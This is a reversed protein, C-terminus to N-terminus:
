EGRGVKRSVQSTIFTDFLADIVFSLVAEELSTPLTYEGGVLIRKVIVPALAGADLLGFPVDGVLGTALDNLLGLLTGDTVIGQDVGDDSVGAYRKSGSRVTANDGTMRFGYADFNTNQDHAQTGPVSILEEHADSPDFLNTAKVSIHNLGEVQVPIILPLMNTVWGDVVAAAGTYGTPPTHMQYFYVNLCRQGGLEQSDVVQYVDNVAM